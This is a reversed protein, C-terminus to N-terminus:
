TGCHLNDELQQVTTNKDSSLRCMGSLQVPWDCVLESDDHEAALMTSSWLIEDVVTSM